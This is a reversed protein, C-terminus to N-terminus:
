SGPARRAAVIIKFDRPPGPLAKVETLGRGALLQEIEPQTNPAGGYLAVRFRLAAGRLDEGPKAAAFLLWGGPKLARQVREVLRELAHPAVFPAPIWALDFAREDALEEGPLERLEIRQALGADAVNKHALALSPGWVDLGVVRLTPFRQAVGIALRAVGTGVDLFSAGPGELRPGLGDLHPLLRPLVQAFGATVDGGSQLVGTDTYTWGPRREHTALFDDDLTWFHRIEALLPAVDAPATGELAALAGAERLLDDAQARLAPHIPTGSIRSQLEAGLVALASASASLQAVLERLAEISM